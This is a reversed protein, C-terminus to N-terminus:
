LIKPASLTVFTPQGQSTIKVGADKFLEKSKSLYQEKETLWTKCDNAHYGYAPGLFKIRNCWKRISTLSGAASAVGAYWVQTVDQIDSLQEVLIITALAYIPMAPLM